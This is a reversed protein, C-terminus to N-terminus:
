KKLSEKFKASECKDWLVTGGIKGKDKLGPRTNTISEKKRDVVKKLEEKKVEKQM